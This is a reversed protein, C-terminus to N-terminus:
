ITICELTDLPSQNKESYKGSSVYQQQYVPADMKSIMGHIHFSDRIPHALQASPYSGDSLTDVGTIVSM